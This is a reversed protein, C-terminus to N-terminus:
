GPLCSLEAIGSFLGRLERLLALRNDRLASDPDNVLVQDFFADVSSRLGALQDLARDYQREGTATVVTARLRQLAEHLSREAPERLLVATVTSAADRVAAPAGTSDSKRLINAIRKNAAALSAGEPRAMFGVLARLRADADLLSDPRAALMADFMETTIGNEATRELYQARLREMMYDYIQAALQPARAPIDPLPQARVAREILAALDLELRHELAIRLVGIAARRLGFPDRTGTPKQDIAFIGAILDLKDALAAADGVRSTPLADGAARPLYHEAIAEAVPPPEGDALAYYRGM